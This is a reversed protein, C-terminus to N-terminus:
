VPKYYVRKRTPFTHKHTSCTTIAVNVHVKLRCTYNQSLHDNMSEGLEVSNQFSQYSTIACVQLTIIKIYIKRAAIKVDFKLVLKLKEVVSHTEM